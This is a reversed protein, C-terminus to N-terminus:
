RVSGMKCPECPRPMPVSVEAIYSLRVLRYSFFGFGPLVSQVQPEPTSCSSWDKFLFLNVTAAEKDSEAMWLGRLFLFDAM